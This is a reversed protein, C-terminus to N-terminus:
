CHHVMVCHREGVSCARETHRKMDLERLVKFKPKIM